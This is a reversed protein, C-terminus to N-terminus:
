RDWGYNQVVKGMKLLEDHPLPLWLMKPEINRDRLNQTNAFQITYFEGKKTSLMNMGQWNSRVQDNAYIGWRRTDFYRRNENLFEIQCEKQLLKFMEDRAPVTKLGPLGVRFRIQNFAKAIEAVDRTFTATKELGTIADFGTITISKGELENLAEAYGLLIEAYRIIPFPKAERQGQNWADSQNIYKVPVYGTSTFDDQNTPSGEKPKRGIDNPTEYRVQLNSGKQSSAEATSSYNTWLRGSFGINAYFRPERGVYIKHVDRPLTYGWYNYPRQSFETNEGSVGQNADYADGNAMYFQDVVRQPISMGGWGEINVPFSHRTYDVVNGSEPQVWIFEKINRVVLEGDFMEKYSKYANIGHPGNPFTGPWDVAVASDLKLMATNAIDENTLEVTNLEYIGMDIVQKAAFAALAYLSDNRTQSVYHKGDSKRKWPEFYKGAEGGNFTPSAQQLRLRAILAIAAGKTPRGIENTKVDRPIAKAAKEFESVIYDVSEHYTARERNFDELTATSTFIEDYVIYLPGWNQLLHYYAWGRIFHVYGLYEQRELLNMDPVSEINAIMYNCRAIIKYMNGWINFTALNRSNIQGITFKIGPFEDTRWNATMEDSALQGPTFSGGWIAGQDPFMTPVNFLYKEANLKSAFISDENMTDLFYHDVNLFNCSQFSLSMVASLVVIVIYKIKKM